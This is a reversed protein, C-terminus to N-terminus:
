LEYYEKKFIMGYEGFRKELLQVFAEHPFPEFKRIVYDIAGIAAKDGGCYKRLPLSVINLVKNELEM